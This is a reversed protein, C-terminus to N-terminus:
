EKEKAAFVPRLVRIPGEVPELKLEERLDERLSSLLVVLQGQGHEVLQDAFEHAAKIQNTSGFLQVDLFATGLDAWFTASLDKRETADALRRYAEIL